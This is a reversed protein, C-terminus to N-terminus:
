ELPTNHPWSCFEAAPGLVVANGQVICFSYSLIHMGLTADCSVHLPCPSAQLMEPRRRPKCRCVRQGCERPRHNQQLKHHGGGSCGGATGPERHIRVAAPRSRQWGAIACSMLLSFIHRTFETGVFSVCLTGVRAITVHQLPFCFALIQM